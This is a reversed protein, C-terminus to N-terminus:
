EILGVQHYLLLHHNYAGRFEWISNVVNVLNPDSGRLVEKSHHYKGYDLEHKLLGGLMVHTNAGLLDEKLMKDYTADDIYDVMKNGLQQYLPNPSQILFIKYYEGWSFPILGRDIIDQASDVPQEYQPKLM